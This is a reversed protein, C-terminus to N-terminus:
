MTWYNFSPQASAIQDDFDHSSMCACCSDKCSCTIPNSLLAYYHISIYNYAQLTEISRKTKDAPICNLLLGRSSTVDPTCKKVRLAQNQILEIHIIITTFTYPVM